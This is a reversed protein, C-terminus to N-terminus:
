NCNYQRVDGTFPVYIDHTEDTSDVKYIKKNSMADICSSNFLIFLFNELGWLNNNNNNNKSYNIIQYNNTM